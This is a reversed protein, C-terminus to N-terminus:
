LNANLDGLKEILVEYAAQLLDRKRNTTYFSGKIGRTNYIKYGMESLANFVKDHTPNEIIKDLQLAVALPCFKGDHYNYTDLVMEKDYNIVRKIQEINLQRLGNKLGIKRPDENMM